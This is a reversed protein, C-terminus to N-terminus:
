HTRTHGRTSRNNEDNEDNEDSDDSEDSEDTDMGDESDTTDKENIILTRTITRGNPLLRQVAIQRPLLEDPFDRIYRETLNDVRNGRRNM